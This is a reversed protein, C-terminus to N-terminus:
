HPEGDAVGSHHLHALMRDAVLRHGEVTYHGYLRFPWLALPDEQAEFAEVMDGTLCGGPPAKYVPISNDNKDEV